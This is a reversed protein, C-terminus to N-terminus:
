QPLRRFNWHSGARLEQRTPETSQRADLVVVGHDGGVEMEDGSVVVFTSEDIGIGPLAPHQQVVARLRPERRRQAFHQDVIVEPWLGLGDGTPPAEGAEKPGGTIMVQSMVAAGASTGAVVAGDLFREHLAEAVGLERLAEVLRAQSGGSLWFLNAGYVATLAGERDGAQLVSVQGAGAQKLREAMERGDNKTSAFPVVLATAAAGGALAAVREYMGAPAPGGGQVVLTGKAGFLAARARPHALMKAGDHGIGPAEILRWGFPWGRERALEHAREFCARGREIRTAGQKLAEASVDLNASLTDKTGLFLTLPAALYRRIADDGGLEAPLKGFGYGFPMERTPFLLTGPNAAVIRTADGPLFAALRTLFQGGASHGIFAVPMDQRQESARMQAIVDAVMEYTWSAPPQAQGDKMVNGGQYAQTPFRKEDFQPVVVLAGARDALPIAYDRYDEANRRMGHMVVLLPGDAFSAPRYTFVELPLGQITLTRRGKGAPPGEVGMCCGVFFLALLVVKM